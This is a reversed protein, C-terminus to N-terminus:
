PVAADLAAGLLDPDRPWHLRRTVLVDLPAGLERAPADGVLVGGRPIALVIPDSARAPALVEALARGAERRDRFRLM